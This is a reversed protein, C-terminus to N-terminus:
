SWCRHSPVRAAPCSCGPAPSRSCGNASASARRSRAAGDVLLDELAIRVGDHRETADAVAADGRAAVDGYIAGISAMLAPEFIKHTSRALIRAREVADVDAWIRLALLKM